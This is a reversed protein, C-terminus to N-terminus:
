WDMKDRHHHMFLELPLTKDAYSVALPFSNLSFSLPVQYTKSLKNIRKVKTKTAEALIIISCYIHVTVLFQHDTKLM